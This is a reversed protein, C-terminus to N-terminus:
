AAHAPIGLEPSVAESSMSKPLPRVASALRDHRLLAGGRPSISRTNTARRDAGRRPTREVIM